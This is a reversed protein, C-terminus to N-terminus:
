ADKFAPQPLGTAGINRVVFVKGAHAEDQDPSLGTTIYLDGLDAGGFCCSTTERCPLEVRHLEAGSTSDFRIVCAGHCFAVWLHGEADACMGDPSADIVANTDIFRQPDDLCGSTECYSFRIIKRTPTDIYHCIKGDPSWSIGNSNTVRSYATECRLNQELRYLNAAGETKDTAITGAFLRGDPSVAADNFRNHPKDAEPDAVHSTAGTQPDLLYLGNDGGWIWRGSACPLTFGVRQDLERVTEAGTEPDLTVIAHGEIDVYILRNERWVPGEGWKSVRTGIPEANSKMM